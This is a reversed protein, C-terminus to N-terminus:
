AKIFVFNNEASLKEEYHYGLRNFKVVEEVSNINNEACWRVMEGRAMKADTAKVQIKKDKLVGFTCSIFSVDNELYKEINRSYEKSALNLIVKDDQILEKYLRDSWYEYLNRKNNISLKSQMELRYPVVADTSKLLGYFGSLIYLRNQLYNFHETEFVRPGMYKYQIGDYALIAPTIAKDLDMALLRKYNLQAIEDNCQWLDQLKQHSMSLLQQHIIKADELFCAKTIRLDHEEDMVMKKAPSIIIKM